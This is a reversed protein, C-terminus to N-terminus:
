KALASYSTLAFGPPAGIAKQTGAVVADIKWRDVFLPVAGASVVADVALLCNYRFSFIINIITYVINIREVCKHCIDGLGELPQIIGTSTEGQVIFLVSPKHTKISEELEELTFM